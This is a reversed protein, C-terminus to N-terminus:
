SDRTIILLHNEDYRAFGGDVLIAIAGRTYRMAPHNELRRRLARYIDNQSMPGDAESIVRKVLDTAKELDLTESM